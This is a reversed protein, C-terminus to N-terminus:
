PTPPRTTASTTLSSRDFGHSSHHALSSPAPARKRRDHVWKDFDEATLQAPMEVAKAQPETISTSGLGHEVEAYLTHEIAARLTTLVDAVILPISRPIPQIESVVTQSVDGELTEALKVSGGEQGLYALVQDGVREILTDAHALTAVVPLHRDPLWSLDGTM